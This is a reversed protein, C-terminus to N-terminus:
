QHLYTTLARMSITGPVNSKLQFRFKGADGIGNTDITDGIFFSLMPEAIYDSDAGQAMSLVVDEISFNVGPTTGSHREFLLRGELQGGDDDPNFSMSARFNAFSELTLGELKFVIPDGEAGTGLHGLPQLETMAIPRRDFLGDANVDMRVDLWTDIDELEIAHETANGETFYFNSLLGYYGQAEDRASASLSSVPYQHQRTNSLASGKESKVLEIPVTMVHDTPKITSM